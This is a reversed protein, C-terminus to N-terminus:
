EEHRLQSWPVAGATGARFDALRRDLETRWADDHEGEPEPHLSELLEHVLRIRESEPLQLAVGLVEQRSPQMFRDRMRIQGFGTGARCRNYRRARKARYGAINLKSKVGGRHSHSLICNYIDSPSSWCGLGRGSYRSLPRPSWRGFTSFSCDLFFM